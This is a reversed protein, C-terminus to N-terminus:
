GITYQDLPLLLDGGGSGSDDDRIIGFLLGQLSFYKGYTRVGLFLSDAFTVSDDEAFVGTILDDEVVFLIQNEITVFNQSNELLGLFDM